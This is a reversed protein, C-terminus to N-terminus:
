PIPRERAARVSARAITNADTGFWINGAGADYFMHRVTGGGSQAIPTVTTFRETRPDFSVLQNPQVGTEVFWLRNEDDAVMGYPLSRQGSPAPWERVEGTAPDLRGLYGRTYDVYWVMGDDTLAIRRARARPAPLTYERIRMTAPDITAIRNSGFETFWPRGDPTVVIGYPRSGETPSKALRVQGTATDLRGVYNGQQVSFWLTGDPGFVLTHPDRAASDPMPFIKVDGTAPDLRGIRANGNGAYWVRGADDLVLNHPYTGEEIEYRRFEGSRPDLVAIYNGRQGVFWVRGDAAVAPDRPRSREWPVTWERVPVTEVAATPGSQAALAAPLAILVPTILGAAPHTFRM